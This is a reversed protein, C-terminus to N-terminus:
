KNSDDRNIVNNLIRLKDLVWINDDWCFDQYIKHKWRLGYYYRILYSIDFAVFYLDIM